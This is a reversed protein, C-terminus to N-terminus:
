TKLPGTEKANRAWRALAAVRATEGTFKHAVGKAHAAFGGASAMRQREEATLTQFGKAM